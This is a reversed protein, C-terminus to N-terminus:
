ITDPGMDDSKFDYDESVPRRADLVSIFLDVDQNAQGVGVSVIYEWVASPSIVSANSSFWYYHYGGAKEITTTIPQREVLKNRAPYAIIRFSSMLNPTNGLVGIVLVCSSNGTCM